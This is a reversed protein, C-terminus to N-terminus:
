STSSKCFLDEGIRRGGAPGWTSWQRWGGGGRAPQNVQFVDEGFLQRVHGLLVDHAQHKVPPVAREQSHPCAGAARGHAVSAAGATKSSEKVAGGGERAPSWPSLPSLMGRRRGAATPPFRKRRRTPSRAPSVGAACPAGGGPVHGAAATAAREASLRHQRRKVAGAGLLAHTHATRLTAGHARRRGWVGGRRVGAEARRRAGSGRQTRWWAAGRM